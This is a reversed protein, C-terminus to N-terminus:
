GSRQGSASTVVREAVISCARSSHFALSFSRCSAYAPTISPRSADASAAASAGCNTAYTGSGSWFSISCRTLALELARTVVEVRPGSSAKLPTQLVHRMVIRDWAGDSASSEAQKTMSTPASVKNGMAVHADAMSANSQITRPAPQEIAISVMSAQLHELLLLRVKKGLVSALRQDRLLLM